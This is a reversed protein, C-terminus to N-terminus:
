WLLRCRLESLVQSRTELSLPAAPPELAALYELFIRAGPLQLQLKRKIIAVQDQGTSWVAARRTAIM